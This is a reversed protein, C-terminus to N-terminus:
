NEWFKKTIDVFCKRYMRQNTERSKLNGLKEDFEGVKIYDFLDFAIKPIEEYKLGTYWALKYKIPKVIKDSWSTTYKFNFVNFLFNNIEWDGGFFCICTADKHEIMASNYVIKYIESTIFSEGQISNKILNTDWYKKSHCGKCHRPCGLITFGISIEDPVEQLLIGNYIFQM